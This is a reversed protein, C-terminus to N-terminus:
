GWMRQRMSRPTPTLRKIEPRRVSVTWTLFDPNLSRETEYGRARYEVMLREAQETTCETHQFWSYQMAM